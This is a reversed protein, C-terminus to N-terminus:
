SRSPDASEARQLLARAVVDRLVESSGGGVVYVRADRLHRQVASDRTYGYGGMMQMAVNTARVYMESAFIKIAAADAAVSAGEVAQAAIDFLASRAMRLDIYMDALRHRVVQFDSILHDFQRRHQVHDTAETLLADTAGVARAAMILRERILHSSIVKWGDGVDGIVSTAPVRVDTFFTEYTGITWDGLTDLRRTEIGESKPDVLFTTLGQQKRAEDSTRTLVLAVDAYGMSSSYLKQGNIIYEDGDAKARTRVSAADSGADAETIAVCFVSQGARLRPIWAHQQSETGFHLLLQQIYITRGVLHGLGLYARGLEDMLHVVDILTGAGDWEAPLGVSLYGLEGM